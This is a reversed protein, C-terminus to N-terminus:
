SAGGSLVRTRDTVWSFPGSAEISRHHTVVRRLCRESNIHVIEYESQFVEGTPAIWGGGTARRWEDHISSNGQVFAPLRLWRRARRLSHDLGGVGYARAGKPMASLDKDKKLYHLLYGVPNSVGVPPADKRSMGHPWWGRRDFHPARVGVPLWIVAHYHVVNRGIGDARRKGDQIEAVWVYRFVFGKRVCWNRAKLMCASLHKADWEVGPRYTLTVMWPVDSRHGRESVAHGRAAFGVAMRLMALRRLPADLSFAELEDKLADRRAVVNAIVTEPSLGFKSLAPAGICTTPVLVLGASRANLAGSAVSAARAHRARSPTTQARQARDDDITAASFDPRVELLAM